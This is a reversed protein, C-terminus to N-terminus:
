SASQILRAEIEAQRDIIDHQRAHLASLEIDLAKLQDFDIEGVPKRLEADLRDHLRM